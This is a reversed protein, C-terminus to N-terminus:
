NKSSSLRDSGAADDAPWIAFEFNGDRTIGSSALLRGDPSFALNRVRGSHAQLSVLEQFTGFDWLKVSGNDNGSALTKGDPCFALSRIASANGPLTAMASAIQLDWLRVTGDASASALMTSRPAFALSHVGFHDAVLKAGETRELVNWIRITGDGGGGALTRGDDSFTLTLSDNFFRGPLLALQRGTELEWLKTRGDDDGTALTRGDPSLAMCVFAFSKGDPIPRLRSPSCHWSDAEARFLSQSYGHPRVDLAIAVHRGSGSFAAMASGTAFNDIHFPPFETGSAVDRIRLLSFDSSRTPVKTVVATMVQRANPTFALGATRSGSSSVTTRLQKRALNWIKVTRDGSSTALMRGDISFAAHWVRGTHGKLIDRPQLAVVDWLWVTGDKVCAALTRDDPSFAVGQVIERHGRLTAKEAGTTADWIKVTHDDGGSAVFRGDHTFAVTNVIEGHGRFTTRLQRTALDWVKATRDGSATALLSGDNSFALEAIHRDHAALTTVIKETQVNWLLVAGDEGGTALTKGDPSIVASGVEGRHGHLVARVLGTQTDWLRITQDDGSTALLSGDPSFAVSNVDGVHGRLTAFESGTAPDWMRATGDWSSTALRRGDPSYAVSQVLNTHGRLTLLQESGHCLRWLYYWVFSRVDEGGPRPRHRSLLEIMDAVRDNNWAAFALKMDAAYLYRRVRQESDHAVAEQDTAARRQRVADARSKEAVDLARQLTVAHWWSGVLLSVTAVLCVALLGAVAPRRRTWKVGRGLPGVPRAHTPRDNLFRELDRDLAAATPYRNAPSKDLCKSCIAQLDPPIEPRLRRLSPPEESVIRRLTDAASDGDFPKQGTLLEFLTVGLAYVDTPPGIEGRRGAAQEPAM